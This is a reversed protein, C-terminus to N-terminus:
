PASPDGAPRKRKPAPPARRARKTWTDRLTAIRNFVPVGPRSDVPDACFYGQREFQYPAGPRAAVLSAEARAGRVLRRSDPNLGAALDGGAGPDPVAFLRDFLRLEVAVSRRACVWHLAGRVKRGDPATGGRTRPDYTCRVEIVEGEADSVYDVCTVLWAFRLRVERGPALRFYGPAPEVMFDDREIWIERSFPLERGGLEPDRPHNPAPLREEGDEPYNVIVVKLPRVVCMARPAGADLVSRVCAELSEIEVVSDKRTVGVRRCLDRVAAAPYGRRRMGRLTPMRPDDWGEVHGAEILRILARKSLVTHTLNLRAFEYQRPRPEVELAELFWDYLARHDEFELTCLSHTVGELYDCQGHAWDYMPYICWREGTNQHPRHLIRYMVPDRLNLNPSSMDIKARLVLAGEPFEGARMRRFLDANEEVPRDRFPSERGPETLTGRKRRLEEPSQGDVYAKGKRVLRMALEYLPEFYDSAHTLRDEWSFGLWRLDEKMSEVYETSERTPNTDDFRLYCRGGPYQDAIGFNLAASKAHGIHLYGNPEPPFRTVVRLAGAARDADVIERVFDRATADESM